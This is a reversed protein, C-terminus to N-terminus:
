AKKLDIIVLNITTAKLNLYLDSIEYIDTFEISM